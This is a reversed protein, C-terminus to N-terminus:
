VRWGPEEGAVCDFGLHKVLARMEPFQGPELFESEGHLARVPNFRPKCALYEALLCLSYRADQQKSGGNSHHAAARCCRCDNM